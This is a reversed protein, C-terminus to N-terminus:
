ELSESGESTASQADAAPLWADAVALAEREIVALDRIARGHRWTLRADGAGLGPDGEVALQGAFGAERALVELLERGPDVLDPALALHLRPQDALRAVLERLMAEVDALPARELARPVIARALALALERSAGARRALRAQDEGQMQALAQAIAEAAACRRRELGAEIEAQAASEGEARGEARALAVAAALEEAGVPPPAPEPAAALEAGDDAILQEIPLPLLPLASRVHRLVRTAGQRAPVIAEQRASLAPGFSFPAADAM